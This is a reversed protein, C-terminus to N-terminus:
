SRESGTSAMGPMLKTVTSFSISHILPLERIELHGDEVIATFAVPVPKGDFWTYTNGEVVNPIGHRFLSRGHLRGSQPRSVAQEPLGGVCGAEM